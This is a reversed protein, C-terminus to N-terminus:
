ESAPPADSASVFQRYMRAYKGKRALLELHTGQEIIRGRDLVVVLDAHRVTSLRHAVVLSTRGALLRALAEQIKAETLTDVASTSRPLRGISAM